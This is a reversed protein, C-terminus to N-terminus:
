SCLISSKSNNQYEFDMILNRSIPNNTNYFIILSIAMSQMVFLIAFGCVCLPYCHYHLRRIRGTQRRVFAVKRLEKYAQWVAAPSPQIKVFLGVM